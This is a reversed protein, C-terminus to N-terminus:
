RIKVIYKTCDKTRSLLGLDVLERRILCYDDFLINSKIINNVEIEKYEKNIEFKYILYNYILPRLSRHKKSPYKILKHDIDFYDKIKEDIINDNVKVLVNNKYVLELDFYINNLMRPIFIKDGEWLTLKSIDDKKIWSLEGEDCEKISGEFSDSIYVYSTEKYGDLDFHLVGVQKYSKLILGTEELTERKLATEISENEEIHGGIGIYFGKNYDNEKKNRYLFLYNDNDKLYLLVTKDRKFEM